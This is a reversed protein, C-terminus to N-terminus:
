KNFYNQLHLMGVDCTFPKRRADAAIEPRNSWTREIKMSPDIDTTASQYRAYLTHKPFNFFLCIFKESKKKYKKM